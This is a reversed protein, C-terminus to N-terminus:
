PQLFLRQYLTQTDSANRIQECNGKDSLLGAIEALLNLHAQEAQEPVILAWLLNVPQGDRASFDIGEDLTLIASLPRTCETIRCHPLAIGNELATSGIKERANLAELIDDQKLEEDASALAEALLELAKKKSGVAENLQIRSATLTAPLTAETATSLM